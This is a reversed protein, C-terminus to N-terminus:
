GCGCGRGAVHRGCSPCIRERRRWELMNKGIGAQLMLWGVGTTLALLAILQLHLAVDNKNRLSQKGFTTAAPM